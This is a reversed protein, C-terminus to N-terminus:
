PRVVFTEDDFYLSRDWNVAETFIPNPKNIVEMRIFTSKYWPITPPNVKVPAREVVYYGEKLIREGVLLYENFDRLMDTVVLNM